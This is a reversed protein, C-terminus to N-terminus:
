WLDKDTVPYEQGYRKLVVIPQNDPKAPEEGPQESEGTEEATEESVVEEGRSGLSRRLNAGRRNTTKVTM